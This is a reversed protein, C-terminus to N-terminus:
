CGDKLSAHVITYVYEQTVSVRSKQASYVCQLSRGLCPGCTPREGDCRHKKARCVDCAYGIRQRKSHRQVEQQSQQQQQQNKSETPPAAGAEHGNPITM